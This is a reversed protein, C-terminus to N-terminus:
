TTLIEPQSKARDSGGGGSGSGTVAVRHGTRQRERRPALALTLVLVLVLVAALPLRADGPVVPSACSFGAGDSAPAGHAPPGAAVETANDVGDADWDDLGDPTGNGDQDADLPDYGYQVEDGDSMGDGDSDDAMPDTFYVNVEDGDELGDGDSDPDLPDTGLATEEADTLGDGDSDTEVGGSDEVTVSVASSTTWTGDDDFAKATLSYSGAVVGSWTYSYPASTDEGLKTAGEFFEVKTVSNYTGSTDVEITISAPAAYTAGDLPATILDLAPFDVNALSNLYDAISGQGSRLAAVTEVHAAALAPHTYATVAYFSAFDDQPMGAQDAHYAVFAKVDEFMTYEPNPKTPPCYDIKTAWRIVKLLHEQFWSDEWTRGWHGWHNNYIRGEGYEGVVAVPVVHDVKPKAKAMDVSYLVHVLEPRLSVADFIEESYWFELPWGKMIPHDPANNTFPVPEWGGWPHGQRGMGLYKGWTDDPFFASHFSVLAGGKSIWDFLNQGWQPNYCATAHCGQSDYMFVVHYKALVAPDLVENATYSAVVTWLGSEQGLKEVAARVKNANRPLMLLIQKKEGENKAIRDPKGEPVNEAASRDGRAAHAERRPVNPLGITSEKLPRGDKDVSSGITLTEHERVTKEMKEGDLTYEIRLQKVIGSAPDGFNGNSAVVALGDATAMGRVKETVDVIRESQLDGYVARVIVLAPAAKAPAPRDEVVSLKRRADEAAAVGAAAPEPEVQTRASEAAVPTEATRVSKRAQTDRQATAPASAARKRPRASQCGAMFAVVVVAGM